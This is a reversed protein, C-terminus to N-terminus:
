WPFSFQMLIWFNLEDFFKILSFIYTSRFYLILNPKPSCNVVRICLWYCLAVKINQVATYCKIACGLFRFYIHTDFVWLCILLSISWFIDCHLIWYLQRFSQFGAGKILSFEQIFDFCSVQNLYLLYLLRFSTSLRPIALGKEM